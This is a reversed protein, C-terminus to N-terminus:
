DDDGSDASVVASIRQHSVGFRQGAQRTTFGENLLGRVAMRRVKSAGLRLRNAGRGLLQVVSTVTGKELISAWPVDRERQDAIRRVLSAARRQERATLDVSTAVERIAAADRKGMLSETTCLGAIGPM